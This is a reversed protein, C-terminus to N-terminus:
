CFVSGYVFTCYIRNNNDRFDLEVIIQQEECSVISFSSM